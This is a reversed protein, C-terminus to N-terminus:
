KTVKRVALLHAIRQKPTGVHEPLRAGAPTEASWRQAMQPQNAGMWRKQALSSFPMFFATGRGSLPVRGM